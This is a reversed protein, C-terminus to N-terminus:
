RSAIAALIDQRGGERRAPDSAMILYLMHGTDTPPLSGASIVGHIILLGRGAHYRVLPESDDLAGRLARITAPDDVDCLAEVATERQIPDAAWTLVAIIAAPWRPDRDIQWLARGLDILGFPYWDGGDALQARQEAEFLTLLAPRARASRLVGLGIVGRTDPLYAMLLAEARAREEGNLEGLAALDLGQRASDQDEFFSFRFREFATPM